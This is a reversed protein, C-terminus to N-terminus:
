LQLSKKETKYDSNHRYVGINISCLDTNFLINLLNNQMYYEFVNLFTILHMKKWSNKSSLNGQLHSKTTLLPYSKTKEM